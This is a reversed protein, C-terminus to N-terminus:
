TCPTLSPNSSKLPAVWWKGDNFVLNFPEEFAEYKNCQLEGYWIWLTTPDEGNCIACYHNLYTRATATNTISRAMRLDPVTSGRLCLTQVEADDWDKSCTNRM